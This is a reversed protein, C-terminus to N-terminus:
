GFSVSRGLAALGQMCREVLPQMGLATATGLAAQLEARAGATDGRRNLIQGLVWLASAENAREELRRSWELAEHAATEAEDLIGAACCAEAIATVHHGRTVPVKAEDKLRVGERAAAIAEDHRGLRSYAKSVTVLALMLQGVFKKDRCISVARELVGLAESDCGRDLLARGRVTSLSITCYLHQAAEAIRDGRDLMAFAQVPDGIEILTWAMQACAGCYPIGSMGFRESARPGELLDLIAREHELTKPYNGLVFHAWGLYYHGTVRLGLDNRREAAQHEDV